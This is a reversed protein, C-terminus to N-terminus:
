EESSLQKPQDLEYEAIIRDINEFIQPKLNEDFFSEPNSDYKRYLRLYKEISNKNGKKVERNYPIRCAYNILATLTYDDVKGKLLYYMVGCKVKKSDEERLQEETLITTVKELEKREMREKDEMFYADLFDNKNNYHTSPKFVDYSVMLESCGSKILKNYDYLGRRLMEDVLAERYWKIDEGSLQDYCNFNEIAQAFLQYMNPVTFRSDSTFEVVQNPNAILEDIIIRVFNLQQLTTEIREQYHTLPVCVITEYRSDIFSSLTKYTKTLEPKWVMLLAKRLLTEKHDSIQKIVNNYTRDYDPTEFLLEYEMQYVESFIDTQYHERPIFDTDLIIKEEMHTFNQQM